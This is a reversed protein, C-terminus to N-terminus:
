RGLDRYKDEIQIQGTGNTYSIQAKQGVKIGKMETLSNKEHRIVSKSSIAQFFHDDEVCLIEGNYKGKETDTERLTKSAVKARDQKEQDASPIDFALLKVRGVGNQYKFQMEYGENMFPAKPLAALDHEVIADKGVQQFVAKDTIKVIVGRYVNNKTQAPYLAINEPKENIGTMESVLYIDQLSLEWSRKFDKMPVNLQTFAKEAREWDNNFLKLLADKPWNVTEQYKDHRMCIKPDSLDANFSIAPTAWLSSTYNNVLWSPDTPFDLRIPPILADNMLIMVAGKEPAESLFIWANKPRESQILETAKEWDFNCPTEVAYHQYEQVLKYFEEVLPTDLITGICPNTEIEAPTEAGGYLYDRVRQHLDEVAKHLESDPATRASATLYLDQVESYMLGQKPEPIYKENVILEDLDLQGNWVDDLVVTLNEKVWLGPAMDGYTEHELLYVPEERYSGEGIVYWTGRHGKVKIGSKQM